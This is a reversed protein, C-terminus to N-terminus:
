FPTAAIRPNDGYGHPDGAGSAYAGYALLWAASIRYWGPALGTHMFWNGCELYMGTLATDRAIIARYYSPDVVRQVVTGRANVPGIYDVAYSYSWSATATANGGLLAILASWDVRLRGGKVLVEVNPNGPYVWASAPAASAAGPATNYAGIVQAVGVGSLIAAVQGFALSSLPVPNGSADVVSALDTLNTARLSRVASELDVIRQELSNDVTQAM